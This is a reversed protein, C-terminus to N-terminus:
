RAGHCPRRVEEAAAQGEGLGQQSVAARGGLRAGEAIRVGFLHGSPLQRDKGSPGCWQRAVGVSEKGQKKFGSPDFVLVGDPEGLEVGVQRSLERILLGDDWLSQGIFKQLAQRDQDHFYAITEASKRKVDSFLGVVYEWLHRQQETSELIAAFPEVFRELRDLMGRPIRPDLVADELLEELRLQFRREM